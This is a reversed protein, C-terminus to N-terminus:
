RPVPGTGANSLGATAAVPPLLFTVGGSVATPTPLYGATGNGLQGYTNDGWCVTSGTTTVGCTSSGGASLARFTTGAAAAVPVYSLDTTGTGLQGLYNAGWCYAAGEATVGTCSEDARATAARGALLAVVLAIKATGV